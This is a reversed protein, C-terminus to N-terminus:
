SSLFYIECKGNIRYFQSCNCNDIFLLTKRNQKYFQKDVKLLWEEFLNTTINKFCYPNQSKGIM